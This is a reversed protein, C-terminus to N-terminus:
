EAAEVLREYEQTDEITVYARGVALVPRAPPRVEGFRPNVGDTAPQGLDEGDLTASGDVIPFLRRPLLTAVQGHPVPSSLPIGCLDCLLDGVREMLRTVPRTRLVPEPIARSVANVAGVPPGPDVVEVRLDRPGTWNLDISTLASRVAGDGFYRPCATDLRPGDVYISWEEGPTRHWVSVFPAFDNQPFVRLALV